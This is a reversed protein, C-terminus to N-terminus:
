RFLTIQSKISNLTLKLPLSTDLSSSCPDNNKINIRWSFYYGEAIKAIFTPETVNGKKRLHAGLSDNTFLLKTAKCGPIPCVPSEPFIIRYKARSVEIDSILFSGATFGHKEVIHKAIKV